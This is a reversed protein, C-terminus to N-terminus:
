GCHQDGNIAKAGSCEWARWQRWEFSLNLLWCCFRKLCRTKGLQHQRWRFQAKVTKEMAAHSHYGPYWRFVQSLLVLSQWLHMFLQIDDACQCGITVFMRVTHNDMSILYRSFFLVEPCQVCQEQPVYESNGNAVTHESLIIKLAILISCNRKLQQCTGVQWPLM